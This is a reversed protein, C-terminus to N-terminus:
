MEVKPPTEWVFSFDEGVLLMWTVRALEKAQDARHADDIVKYANRLTLWASTAGENPMGWKEVKIRPPYEHVDLLKAGKIIYGASAFTALVQDVLKEPNGHKGTAYLPVLSFLPLWMQPRPVETPSRSYTSELKQLVDRRRKLNNKSITDFEELPELRRSKIAPTLERDAVCIPCSCEFGWGDLLRKNLSMPDEPGKEVTGLYSFTLETGALLDRAARIIQLDGLFSRRCTPDCSHNILPSKLWIGTTRYLIKAVLFTDVVAIGDVPDSPVSEYSGHFLAEFDSKLSPTMMLKNSVNQNGPIDLLVSAPSISKAKMLEGPPAAFCCSFAKECLLLDGAKVPKTTFLGRGRGLSDRAEVTGTFSACDIKPPRLESAKYLKKWEFVGTRQEKIRLNTRALEHKGAASGPFKTELVQLVRYLAKESRDEVNQIFSVDELVADYAEIRLNALARNNRLIEEESASPSSRIGRSYMETADYFKGMNVFDNGRKKWYEAPKTQGFMKSRWKEPVRTDDDFLWMIDTPHDVRIAYQSNTGVKFYPEKLIFVQNQKLISEAPRVHEPEQLYLAFPNATGQEDEVVNMIASMRMPECVCRLLLYFGRHNTEIKLDKIGIKKLSSLPATSPHYPEGIVTTMMINGGAAMHNSRRVMIFEDVIQNRSPINSPKEGRRKSANRAAQQHATLIREVQDGDPEQSAM